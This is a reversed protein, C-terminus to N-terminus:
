RDARIIIEFATTIAIDTLESITIRLSSPTTGIVHSIVKWDDIHSRIKNDRVHREAIAMGTHSDRHYGM